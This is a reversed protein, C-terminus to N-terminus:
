NENYRPPLPNQYLHRHNLYEEWQIWVGQHDQFGWDKLKPGMLFLSWSIAGKHPLELRHFDTSKRERWGGPGRWVRETTISKTFEDMPDHSIPFPVTEWYGGELIKAKWNWPHDHLGDADSKVCKHLVLRYSLNPFWRALWRTNLLYYRHLYPENKDRDRILIYLGFFKCISAVVYWWRM